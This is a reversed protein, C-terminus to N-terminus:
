WTIYKTVFAEVRYRLVHCVEDDFGEGVEVGKLGGRVVGVLDRAGGEESVEEWVM